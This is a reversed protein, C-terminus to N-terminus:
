LTGKRLKLLRYRIVGDPRCNFVPYLGETELRAVRLGALFAELEKASLHYHRQFRDRVEPDARIQRLLQPVTRAPRDLFANPEPRGLALAAALFGALIGAVKM